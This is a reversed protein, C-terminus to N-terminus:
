KSGVYFKCIYVYTHTCVSYTRIYIHVCALMCTPIYNTVRFKQYIDIYLCLTDCIYWSNLNVEKQEYVGTKTYEM